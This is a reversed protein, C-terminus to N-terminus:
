LLHDDIDNFIEQWGKPSIGSILFERDDDNLESLCEQIPNKDLVWSMYGILSFSATSYEEGTKSCLGIAKGKDNGLEVQIGYHPEKIKM